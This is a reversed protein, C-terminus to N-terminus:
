RYRSLRSRSATAESSRTRRARLRWSLTRCDIAPKALHLFREGALLMAEAIEDALQPREWRGLPAIFTQRRAKALEAPADLHLPSQLHGQVRAIQVVLGTRWQRLLDIVKHVFREDIRGTM